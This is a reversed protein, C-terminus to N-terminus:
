AQSRRPQFEAALYALSLAGLCLGFDRLAIDYYGAICLDVVIGTLWIFVIAGGVKPWFLVIFAAIIEIAGVVMMFPHPAIAHGIFPALYKDWDVLRNFFKDVGAILPAVFFVFHEIQYAKHAASTTPATAISAM